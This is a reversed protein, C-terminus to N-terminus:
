LKSLLFQQVTVTKTNYQAASTTSLAITTRFCRILMVIMLALSM